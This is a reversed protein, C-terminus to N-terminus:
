NYLIYINNGLKSLSLLKVIKKQENTYPTFLHKTGKFFMSKQTMQVYVYLTCIMITLFTCIQQM